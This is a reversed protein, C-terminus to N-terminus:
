ILTNKSYVHFNVNYEQTARQVSICFPEHPHWIFAVLRKISTHQYCSSGSYSAQKGPYLRFSFRGTERNNFKIIQDGIPKPRDFNSILKMDYSFLSHDLYPSVTYSQSNLPLESLICKTLDTNNNLKSLNKIQRQLIQQAHINNSPLTHFNFSSPSADYDTNNTVGELTTLSFYDQLNEYVKLLFSSTNRLINLIKSTELDYLVFYFPTHQENLINSAHPSGNSINLVNNSLLSSGASSTSAIASHSNNPNNIPTMSVNSNTQNHNILTNSNNIPTTLTSSNNTVIFSTLQNGQMFSTSTTGASSNSTKQNTMYESNVYKILIHRSDLFQLKYMKLNRITNINSYFQNLLNKELAERYFFTLIRQKMSTLCSENFPKTSINHRQHHLSRYSTAAAPHSSTTRTLIKNSRAFRKAAPEILSNNYNQIYDSDDSYCFRGIQQVPIFKYDIDKSSKQPSTPAINYIHITQNQQSLITLKNKFLCLSQNHTLNLKDAKFRIKDCLKLSNLNVLYITYNEIFGYHLSENNAALQDYPPLNDENVVESSAVIIYSNKYFLTCERNVLENNDTLKLNALEKFYKEFARLRFQYSETNEFDTRDAPKSRFNSFDQSQSLNNQSFSRIDEIGASSGNFLFIQVGNLNQNFAVLYRGDPSFRRLYCNPTKVNIITYNPTVALYISKLHNFKTREYRNQGSYLSTLSSNSYTGLERSILNHILNLPRRKTLKYEKFLDDDNNM